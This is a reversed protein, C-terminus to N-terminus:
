DIHHFIELYSISINVMVFWTPLPNQIYLNSQPKHHNNVRSTALNQNEQDEIKTKM